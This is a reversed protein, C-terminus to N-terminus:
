QFHQKVYEVLDDGSLETTSPGTRVYFQKANGNKLYVASSSRECRVVLVRSEEYDDFSAHMAAWANPGMKSNVINVLHLNMKDEDSFGDAEVGLPAGENSVGIVLSGGQTNLFGALTKLVAHEISKDHKGTHLNARLTSKFELVDSEGARILDLLNVEEADDDEEPEDTDREEENTGHEKVVPRDM